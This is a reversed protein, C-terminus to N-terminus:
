NCFSNKPLAYLASGRRQRDHSKLIIIGLFDHSKLIIINLKEHSKLLIDGKETSTM